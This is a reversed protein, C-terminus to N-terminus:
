AEGLYVWDDSDLMYLAGCRSRGSRWTMTIWHDGFELPAVDLVRQVERGPGGLRWLQGVMVSEPKQM